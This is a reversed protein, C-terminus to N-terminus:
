VLKGTAFGVFGNCTPASLLGNQTNHRTTEWFEMVVVQRRSTASKNATDSVLGCCYNLKWSGRRLKYPSTVLFRTCHIKPMLFHSSIHNLVVAASPSLPCCHLAISNLSNWSWRAPLVNKGRSASTCLATILNSEDTQGDTRGDTQSTWTGHHCLNSIKSVLQVTL